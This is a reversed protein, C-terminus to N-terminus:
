DIIWINVLQRVATRWEDTRWKDTQGGNMRGDTMWRDMMKKLDSETDPFPSTDMKEPTLLYFSPYVKSLDWTRWLNSTLQSKEVHLKCTQETFTHTKRWCYLCASMLNFPYKFINQTAAPKTVPPRHLSWRVLSGPFSLALVSFLILM